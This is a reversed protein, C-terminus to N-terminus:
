PTFRVDDSLDPRKELRFWGGGQEDRFTGEITEGRIIGEFVALRALEFRLSSGLQVNSMAGSAALAPSALQVNTLAVPTLASSWWTGSYEGDHGAFEFDAPSRVVGKVLVGSWSGALSDGRRGLAGSSSACSCLLLLAGTMLKRM